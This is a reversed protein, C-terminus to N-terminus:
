EDACLMVACVPVCPVCSVCADNAPALPHDVCKQLFTCGAAAARATLWAMYVPPDVMFATYEVGTGYRRGGVCLEEERLRRYNFVDGAWFPDPLEKDALMRSRVTPYPHIPVRSPPVCM